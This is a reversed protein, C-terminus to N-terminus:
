GRRWWVFPWALRGLIGQPISPDGVGYDLEQHAEPAEYTGFLIDWLPTFAGFNRDHLEHAAAHHVRHVPPTVVVRHLWRPFRMDLNAHGLTGITTIFVQYGFLLLPPAGLMVLPLYAGVVRTLGALPHNRTGKFAHLRATDHHHVHISWLWPMRHSCRHVWYDLFDIALFALVCQSAWSWSTPWLAAGAIATLQGALWLMAGVMALSILAETLGILAFLGLDQALQPDGAIGERTRPVLQELLILGVLTGLALVGRTADHAGRGDAWITASFIGAVFLPWFAVRVFGRTASRLSGEPLPFSEATM